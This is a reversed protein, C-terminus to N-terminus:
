RLQYFQMLIYGIVACNKKRESLPEASETPENEHCMQTMKFAGIALSHILKKFKTNNEASAPFYRCLM